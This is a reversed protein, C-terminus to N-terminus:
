VLRAGKTNISESVGGMYNTYFVNGYFFIYTISRAPISIEFIYDIISVAWMICMLWAYKIKKVIGVISLILGIVPLTFFVYIM